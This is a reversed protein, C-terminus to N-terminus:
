TIYINYLVLHSFSSSFFVVVVVVVVNNLPLLLGQIYYMYQGEKRERKRTLFFPLFLHTYKYMIPLHVHVYM